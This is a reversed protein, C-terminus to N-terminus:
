LILPVLTRYDAVRPRLGAAEVAFGDEIRFGGWPAHYLPIDISLAMGPQVVEASHSAFIPPEFEVVGISHIGVYPFEAGTNGQAVTARAVAEAEWGLRGVALTEFCRAQASRAVAVIRELEVSPKLLFPRGMAGHYGEYRPAVTIAVLDDAQIVRHTSRAIIPQTNRVGSAVMTDIGFGEAGERRMAAEAAAAVTRETVGPRIAGAAALLGARAIRYAEDIVAQEAVTKIARLSFAVADGDVVRRADRALAPALAQGLGFPVREWGLLGVSRVGTLFALTAEVGDVLHTTPYEESPHGLLMSAIANDLGPRRIVAAYGVSEPGTILLEAGDARRLLLLPEFHPEIDTLYRIHSPGAVAGDDGFAIWADIDQALLAASLAARRAPFEADPIGIFPAVEAM